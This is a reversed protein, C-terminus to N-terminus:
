IFRRICYKQIHLKGSLGILVETWNYVKKCCLEVPPRETGVEDYFLRHGPNLAAKWPIAYSQKQPCLCVENCETLM